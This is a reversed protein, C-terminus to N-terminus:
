TQNSHSVDAAFKAQAKQIAHFIPKAFEGITTKERGKKGGSLKIRLIASITPMNGEIASGKSM